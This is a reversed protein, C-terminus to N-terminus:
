WRGEWFVPKRCCAKAATGEEAQLVIELNGLMQREEWDLWRRNEPYILSGAM